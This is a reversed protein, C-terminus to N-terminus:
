AVDVDRLIARDGVELLRTRAAEVPDQLLFRAGVDGTLSEVQSRLWTGLIVPHGRVGAATPIVHSRGAEAVFYEVTRRVLSSTLEPLDGPVIAFGRTAAGAARLGAALSHGMGGAFDPAFVCRVPLGALANEIRERGHGIVVIVEGFGAACVSEVTARVVTRGSGDPAPLLLKHQPAARRSLGAALVIAAVDSFSVM